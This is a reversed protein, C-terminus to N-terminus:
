ENRKMKEVNDMFENWKHFFTHMYIAAAVAAGIILPPYEGTPNVVNVPDNEVYGFFGCGWRCIWDSGEGDV